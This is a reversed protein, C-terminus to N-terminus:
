KGSANKVCMNATQDEVVIDNHVGSKLSPGPGYCLNQGWGRKGGEKGILDCLIATLKNPTIMSYDCKNPTIMSYDCKNPTIMSYDCKNPTIVSYNRNM